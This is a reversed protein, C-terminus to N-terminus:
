WLNVGPSLTKKTGCISHRSVIGLCEATKQTHQLPHITSGIAWLFGILCTHGLHRGGYETSGRNESRRLLAWWSTSGHVGVRYLCGCPLLAQIPTMQAARRWARAARTAFEPVAHACQVHPAIGPARHPGGLQRAGNASRLFRHTFPASERRLRTVHSASSSLCGRWSGNTVRKCALRYFVRPLGRAHCACRQWSQVRRGM